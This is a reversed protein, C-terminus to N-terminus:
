KLYPTRELITDKEGKRGGDAEKKDGPAPIIGRYMEVTMGLASITATSISEHTMLTLVVAWAIGGTAARQTATTATTASYHNYYDTNQTPTRHRHRYRKYDYTSIYTVCVFGCVCM